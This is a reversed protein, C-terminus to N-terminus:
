EAPEGDSILYTRRPFPQCEPIPERDIRANRLLIKFIDGQIAAFRDDDERNHRSVISYVLHRSKSFQNLVFWTLFATSSAVSAVVAVLSWTLPLDNPDALIM